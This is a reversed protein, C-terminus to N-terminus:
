WLHFLRELTSSAGAVHELAFSPLGHGNSVTERCVTLHSDKGRCRRDERVVSFDFSIRHARRVTGALAEVPSTAM